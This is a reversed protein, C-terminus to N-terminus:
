AIRLFLPRYTRREKARAYRLLARVADARNARHAAFRYEEIGELERKSVLVQLRM